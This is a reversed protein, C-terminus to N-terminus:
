STFQLYILVGAAITMVLFALFGLINTRTNNVYIGMIKKNNAIHLIIAILVPATIGYLIATYILADIPSIGLYNMSLGLLLSIAIITYFGRAEHFKKSLGQEWGFTEAFIYSLSGSLVPIAILGTGIIGIAFLLYAANGALPQLARAAEEVTNINRVGGQFLVTGTTLIIFYMVLGSFAMGLDVDKDVDHIFNKNVIIKKKRSKQEEVEVSAQWFFLYPSITTGLIGVLVAMFEKTFEIKPIFTSKMIVSFDQKYLFPVIFYVLMVICLYKLISAMKQYPLYIILLLLMVTFCVSFFGADISPFLLNGVAGMGAIDAGINMVIAPFSFLLMIYLIVPHYHKKLTGTLGQETVIGIRACMQQIAAMLPFALISTWLTSLGYAAGAQSYTAIGSPDDDSAGTVLGPGILKSFRKWKTSFGENQGSKKSNRIM